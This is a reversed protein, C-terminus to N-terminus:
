SAVRFRYGVNRITEILPQGGGEIKVRLRRIHVDVTRTGGFYDYGWLQSLLNERTYVRGPNDALLVLLQYEKYTLLVRRGAVTVEYRELNIVLDGAQIVQQGASGKVKHIVQKLRLQLEGPHAPQVLIDDANLSHDYDSLSDISVVALTPISLERCGSIMHRARSLSLSELDLLAADPMRSKDGNMLQEPSPGALYTLGDAMIAQSIAGLGENRDTLVWLHFVACGPEFLMSHWGNCSGTYCVGKSDGFPWVRSATWDRSLIIPLLLSAVIPCDPTPRRSHGIGYVNASGLEGDGGLHDIPGEMIRLRSM